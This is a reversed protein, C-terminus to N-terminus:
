KKWNYGLYNLLEEEQPSLKDLLKKTMLEAHIENACSAAAYLSLNNVVDRYKAPIKQMNFSLLDPQLCHMCEHMIIHLPSETSFTKSAIEEEMLEPNVIITNQGPFALCCPSFSSNMLFSTGIITEPVPINNKKLIKLTELCKRAFNPNNDCYLSKVGYDDRIKNKIKIIESNTDKITLIKYLGITNKNIRTQIKNSIQEMSLTFFNNKIYRNFIEIQTKSCTEVHKANYDVAINELKNFLDEETSIKRFSNEGYRKLYPNTKFQCILNNKLIPLNNNLLIPM